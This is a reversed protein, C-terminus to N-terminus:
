HHQAGITWEIRVSHVLPREPRVVEVSPTNLANPPGSQPEICIAHHPEDYVVWHRCSSSLRLSIGEPWRIEPPGNLGEFCDDWPGEPPVILEGSPIGQADRLHMREAEFRLQGPGMTGLVRRFWPHWGVVAPFSADTARVELRWSLANSELAFESRVEGPWPWEPGLNCALTHPGVGTWPRDFVTGHIAHPPMNIPLSWKSGGWDFQGGRTRGAWPVMPYCGWQMPASARPVLLDHGAVRLSALRGGSQPEVVAEADANALVMNM